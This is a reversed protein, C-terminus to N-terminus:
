DECSGPSCSASQPELPVQFVTVARAPGSRSSPKIVSAAFTRIAVGLTDHDM